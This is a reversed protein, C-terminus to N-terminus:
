LCTCYDFKMGWNGGNPNIRIGNGWGTQTEIVQGSGNLKVVVAHAAICGCSGFSAMPVQYTYTTSYNHTSSYPFHGPQPNGQGNVPVAACDGVFLHTQTLLYGNATSYTVYINSADNSVSVTGADLTQGAILTVTTPDCNGEGGTRGVIIDNSNGSGQQLGSATLTAAGDPDPGAKKCSFLFVTAAAFSVALVLITKRM